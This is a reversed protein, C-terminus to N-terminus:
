RAGGSEMRIAVCTGRVDERGLAHCGKSIVVIDVQLGYALIALSRCCWEPPPVLDAGDEAIGAAEEEFQV